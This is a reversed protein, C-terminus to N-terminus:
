HDYAVRIKIRHQADYFDIEKQGFLQPLFDEEYSEDLFDANFAKLSQCAFTDKCIKDKYIKLELVSQGANYIQLHTHDQYHTVFGKDYFKMTPTKILITASKEFVPQKHICGTFLILLSFLVVIIRM